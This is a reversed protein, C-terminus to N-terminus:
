RSEGKRESRRKGKTRGEDDKREEKKGERKRGDRVEEMRYLKCIEVESLQRNMYEFRNRSGEKGDKKMGKIRWESM